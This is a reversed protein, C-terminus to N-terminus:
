DETDPADEAPDSELWRIADGRFLLGVAVAHAVLSLLGYIEYLPTPGVFYGGVDTLSLLFLAVLIYDKYSGADVVGRFTDCAAWIADNVESQKVTDTM